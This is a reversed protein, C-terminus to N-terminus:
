FTRRPRGELGSLELADVHFLFVFQFHLLLPVTSVTNVAVLVGALLARKANGAYPKAPSSWLVRRGDGYARHQTTDRDVRKACGDELKPRFVSGCACRLYRLNRGGLLDPLFSQATINHASRALHSLM